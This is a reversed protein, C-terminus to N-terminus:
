RQWAPPLVLQTDDAYIRIYLIHFTLYSVHAVVLDHLLNIYMNLLVPISSFELATCLQVGFQVQMAIGDSWRSPGTIYVSTAGGTPLIPLLQALQLLRLITEFAASPDRLVLHQQDMTQQKSCGIGLM